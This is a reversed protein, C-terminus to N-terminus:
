YDDILIQFIAARAPIPARRKNNQYAILGAVFWHLLTVHRKM